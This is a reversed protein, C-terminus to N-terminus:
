CNEFKMVKREERPTAAPSGASETGGGIMEGRAGLGM